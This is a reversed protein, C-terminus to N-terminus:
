NEGTQRDFAQLRLELGFTEQQLHQVDTLFRELRPRTALMPQEHQLYEAVNQAISNSSDQVWGTVMQILQVVKRALTDGVIGSLQEEWDPRFGALVIDVDLYVSGLLEKPLPVFHLQPNERLRM